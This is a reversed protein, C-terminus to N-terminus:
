FVIEDAEDTEDDLMRQAHAYVSVDIGATLFGGDKKMISVSTVELPYNNQELLTFLNKIQDYTGEIELNFLYKAPKVMDPREDSVEEQEDAPTETGAFVAAVYVVGAEKSILALDRVVSIEDVTDPM